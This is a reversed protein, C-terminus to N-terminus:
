TKWVSREKETNKSSIMNKSKSLEKPNLQPLNRYKMSAGCARGISGMLNVISGDRYNPLIM